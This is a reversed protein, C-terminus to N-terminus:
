WQRRPRTTRSIPVEAGEAYAAADYVTVGGDTPGFQWKPDLPREGPELEAQASTRAEVRGVYERLQARWERVREVDANPVSLELEIAARLGAISVLEARDAAALTAESAVEAAKRASIRLARERTPTTEESFRGTEVGGAGAGFGRAKLRFAMLDEVNALVQEASPDTFYVPESPRSEDGSADVFVVRYSGNPYQALETTFDRSQPNEPDADLPTLAVTELTAYDDSGPAAEEIRAQTWAEDTRPPPTFGELTVVYAM